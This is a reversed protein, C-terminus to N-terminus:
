QQNNGNLQEGTVVRNPDMETILKNLYQTISLETGGVLKELIQMQESMIRIKKM